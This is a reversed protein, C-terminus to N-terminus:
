GDTWGLLTPVEVPAPEIMWCSYYCQMSSLMHVHRVIRVSLQNLAICALCSCAQYSEYFSLTVPNIHTPETKPPFAVVLPNPDVCVPKPCPKPPLLEANPALEEAKPAGAECGDNNPVGAEM